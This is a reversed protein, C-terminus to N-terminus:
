LYFHKHINHSNFQPNFLNILNYFFLKKKFQEHLLIFNNIINTKAKLIHLNFLAKM